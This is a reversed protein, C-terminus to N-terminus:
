TCLISVKVKRETLFALGRKECFKETSTGRTAGTTALALYAISKARIHSQQPQQPDCVTAILHNIMSTPRLKLGPKRNYM